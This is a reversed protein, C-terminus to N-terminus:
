DDAPGAAAERRRRLIVRVLGVGFVLV